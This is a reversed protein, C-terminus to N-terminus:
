QVPHIMVLREGGGFVYGLPQSVRKPVHKKQPLMLYKKVHNQTDGGVLVPGTSPTEPVQSGKRLPHCNSKSKKFYIKFTM